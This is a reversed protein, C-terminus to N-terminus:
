GSGITLLDTDEELLKPNFVVRMHQPYAGVLQLLEVTTENSDIRVRLYWRRYVVSWRVTASWDAQEVTARNEAVESILMATEDGLRRSSSGLTQIPEHPLHRALPRHRTVEPVEHHVCGGVFWVDIFIAYGPLNRPM